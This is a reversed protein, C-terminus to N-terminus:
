TGGPAGGSAGGSGEGRPPGGTQPGGSPNGGGSAGGGPPGGTGPAGGMMGLSKGMGQQALMQCKVIAENVAVLILDELIGIDDSDVAEMNIKIKHFEMAGNCKVVVAGGGSSAEVESNKLDEQLKIVEKQMRQMQQFLQNIDPQM